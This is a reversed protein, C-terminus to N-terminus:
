VNKNSICSKLAQREFNYCSHLYHYNLLQRCKYVHCVDSIGATTKEEFCQRPGRPIIYNWIRGCIRLLVLLFFMCFYLIFFLHFYLYKICRLHLFTWFHLPFFCEINSLIFYYNKLMWGYCMCEGDDPADFCFVNLAWWRKWNEIFFVCYFMMMIQM